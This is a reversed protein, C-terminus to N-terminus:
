DKEGHMQVIKIASWEFSCQNEKIAGNNITYKVNFFYSEFDTSKKKYVFVCHSKIFHLLIRTDSKYLSNLHVM